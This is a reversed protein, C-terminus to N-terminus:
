RDPDSASGNSKSDDRRARTTAQHAEQHIADISERIMERRQRMAYSRTAALDLLAFILLVLILALVTMWLIVFLLNVRGGVRPQVYSGAGILLAIAAMTGVGLNRRIDQNAFYARDEPSIREPRARQEYWQRLGLFLAILCLGTAMALSAAPMDSVNPM